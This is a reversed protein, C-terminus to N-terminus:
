EGGCCTYVYIKTTILNILLNRWSYTYIIIAVYIYKERLKCSSETESRRKEDWKTESSSSSSIYNENTEDIIFLWIITVDQKTLVLHM